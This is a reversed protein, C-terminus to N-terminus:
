RRDRNGVVSRQLFTEIQHARMVNLVEAHGPRPRQHAHQGFLVKMARHRGGQDIGLGIVRRREFPQLNVLHHGPRHHVTPGSSAKDSAIVWSVAFRM